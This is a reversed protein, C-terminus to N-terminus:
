RTLLNDAYNADVYCGVYVPKGRPLPANGRIKEESDPYFEEWVNKDSPHFLQEDIDLIKSDFVIRGSM